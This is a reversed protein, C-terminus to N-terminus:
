STGIQGDRKIVLQAQYSKSGDKRSRTQITGIENWDNKM